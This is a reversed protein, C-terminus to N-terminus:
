SSAPSASLMTFTSPSASPKSAPPRMVFSPVPSRRILLDKLQKLEELLPEDIEQRGATDYIQVNGGTRECWSAAERGVRLVDTEAPNRNFCPFTSKDGLTALQRIAAPRRLDCAVLLPAKGQAKLLRALKASSTTKGAGNLGM